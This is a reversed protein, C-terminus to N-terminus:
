GESRHGLSQELRSRLESITPAAAAAIQEVSPLPITVTPTTSQWRENLVSPAVATTTNVHYEVPTDTKDGIVKPGGPTYFAALIFGLAGLTTTAQALINTQQEATVVNFMTLVLLVAALVTYIVQRLSPWLAAIKAIM